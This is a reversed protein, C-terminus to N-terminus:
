RLMGPGINRNLGASSRVYRARSRSRSQDDQPDTFLIRRLTTARGAATAYARRSALTEPSAPSASKVDIHHRKISRVASCARVPAAFACRYPSSFKLAAPETTSILKGALRNVRHVRDSTQDIIISSEHRERPWRIESPFLANPERNIWRGFFTANARIQLFKLIRRPLCSM